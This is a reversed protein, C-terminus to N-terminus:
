IRMTKMVVKVDPSFLVVDENFATDGAASAALVQEALSDVLLKQYNKTTVKSIDLDRFRYSKYKRVPELKIPNDKGETLMWDIFDM